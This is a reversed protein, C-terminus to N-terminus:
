TFGQHMELSRPDPLNTKCAIWRASKDALCVRNRRALNGPDVVSSPKCKSIVWRYIWCEAHRFQRLQVQRLGATKDDVDEAGDSLLFLLKARLLEEHRPVEGRVIQGAQLIGFGGQCKLEFEFANRGDFALEGGADCDFEIRFMEVLDTIDGGAFDDAIDQQGARAGLRDLGTDVLDVAQVVESPLQGLARRAIRDFPHLAADGISALGSSFEDFRERVEFGIDFLGEGFGVGVFIGIASELADLPSQLVGVVAYADLGVQLGGSFSPSPVFTSEQSVVEIRDGIRGQGVWGVFHEHQDELRGFVGVSSLGWADNAFAESEQDIVGIAGQVVRDLCRDPDSFDGDFDADFLFGFGEFGSDELGVDADICDVFVGRDEQAGDVVLFGEQQADVSLAVHEKHAGDFRSDQSEDIVEAGGFASFGDHISIGGFFEGVQDDVDSFWFSEFDLQWFGQGSGFLGEFRFDFEVEGGTSFFSELDSEADCAIGHDFWGHWALVRFSETDGRGGAAELEQSSEFFFGGDGFFVGLSGFEIEEGVVCGKGPQSGCGVICEIQELPDLVETFFGWRDAPGFALGHLDDAFDGRLSELDFEAATSIPEAEIAEGFEVPQFYGQCFEEGSQALASAENREPVSLEGLDGIGEALSESGDLVDRDAISVFESDGFCAGCDDLFGEAAIDGDIGIHGPFIGECSECTGPFKFGFDGFVEAGIKAFVLDGAVFPEGFEGM